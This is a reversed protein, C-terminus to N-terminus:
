AIIKPIVYIVLLCISKGNDMAGRQRSCSKHHVAHVINEKGRENINKDLYRLLLYSYHAMKNMGQYFLHLTEAAVIVCSLTAYPVYM